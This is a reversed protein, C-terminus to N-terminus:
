GRAMARLREIRYTEAIEKGAQGLSGVQALAHAFNLAALRRQQRWTLEGRDASAQLVERMSPEPM